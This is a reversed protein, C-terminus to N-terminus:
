LYSIGSLLFLGVFVSLYIKWNFIKQNPRTEWTINQNLSSSTELDSSRRKELDKLMDNILSM